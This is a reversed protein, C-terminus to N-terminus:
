KGRLMEKPMFAEGSDLHRKLATDEEMTLEFIQEELQSQMSAHDRLESKPVLALMDKLAFVVILPTGWAAGESASEEFLAIIESWPAGKGEALRQAALIRARQWPNIRVTSTLISHENTRTNHALAQEFRSFTAFVAVGVATGRRPVRRRQTLVAHIGLEECNLRQM